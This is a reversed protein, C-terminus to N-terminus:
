LQIEFQAGELPQPESLILKGKLLEQIATRAQYLGLGTSKQIGKSSVYREFIRDKLTPDIGGANDSLILHRQAMNLEIKILRQEKPIKKREFAEISNKILNGVALLFYDLDSKWLVPSGTSNIQFQAQFELAMKEIENKPDFERYKAQINQVFRHVGLIHHLMTQSQSVLKGSEETKIVLQSLKDLNAKLGALDTNADHHFRRIQEQVRQRNEIYTKRTKAFQDNPQIKICENVWNLAEMEGKEGGTFYALDSLINMVMARSHLYSEHPEVNESVELYLTALQQTNDLYNTHQFAIREQNILDMLVPLVLPYGWEPLSLFKEVWQCTQEKLSDQKFRILLEVLDKLREPPDRVDKTVSAPEESYAIKMLHIYNGLFTEFRLFYDQFEAQQKLVAGSASAAMRNQLIAKQFSTMSSEREKYHAEFRPLAELYKGKTFLDQIIKQYEPDHHTWQPTPNSHSM